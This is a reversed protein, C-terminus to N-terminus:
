SEWSRKRATFLIRAEAELSGRLSSIPEIAGPKNNSGVASSSKNKEVAKQRGTRVGVIKSSHIDVTEVLPRGRDKWSDPNNNHRHYDDRKWCRIEKLGVPARRHGIFGDICDLAPLLRRRIGCGTHNPDIQYDPIQRLLATISPIDTSAIGTASISNEDLEEEEDEEGEEEEEEEEEGEVETQPDILTSGLFITKSRLSFFRVMEGLHYSDCARSNSFGWRCQIPRTNSVVATPPMNTKSLSRERETDDELAGYVRLFHAQLDTITNM